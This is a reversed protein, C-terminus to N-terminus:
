DHWHYTGIATPKSKSSAFLTGDFIPWWSKSSITAAKCRGNISPGKLAALRQVMDPYQAGMRILLSAQANPKARRQTGCRQWRDPRQHQPHLKRGLISGSNTLDASTHLDLSAGSLLAGGPALDGDTITAFVHSV